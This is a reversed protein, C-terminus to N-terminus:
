FNEIMWANSNHTSVTFALNKGDPAAVPTGVINTTTWLESVEGNLRVRLLAAGRVSSSTVFWSRGDASWTIGSLDASNGVSSSRALRTQVDVLRIRDKAEDLGVVAVASGDRSLDWAPSAAPDAALRFMEATRGRVPDFATFVLKGNSKDRESLLCSPRKFPCRVEAGRSAELVQDPAGGSIPVRMLRFPATQTGDEVHDWYLVGSGEPTLRPDTQDGPGLIFDQAKRDALRQRFIDWNGNRDSYLFLSQGDPTWASPLDNKGELTLRRPNRLRANSEFGAVNLDRQLGSNVLVLRRSDQSISLDLLSLGAWSTIRGPRGLAKGTRSVRVEWLNTDKENPPPEESSYFIRGDAAWCFSRLGPATLVNVTAGGERPVTELMVESKDGETHSKTYAVRQGDPAWQVQRFREGPSAQLLKRPNAGNGDMIWIESESRSRVYAISAGDWSV